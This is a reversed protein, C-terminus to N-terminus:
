GAGDCRRRWRPSRSSRSSPVSDILDDPQRGPPCGVVAGCPPRHYCTGTVCGSQDGLVVPRDCAAPAAFRPRRPSGRTRRIHNAFPGQRWPPSHTDVTIRLGAQNAPAAFALYQIPQQGVNAGTLAPHEDKPTLRPDALGRQHVVHRPGTGPTADNPRGAHLRLHLERESAHMLQARRHQVVDVIQRARLAVGQARREPQDGALRGITEQDAQRHQAQQRRHGLLSRKDAQDVVRLPEVPDRRLDEREDRPPQQSLGDGQHEGYALRAVRQLQLPQRFPRDTTQAVSISAGQQVRCTGPPEVLPHPVPDDGLGAAVREGQQLQGAAQGRGLQRAAERKGARPRQRPLDLVAEDPADPRKRLLRLSQQQDGGGFGQAIRGQQLAGGLSEPDPSVGFCRGLVFPQDLETRPHPETMRQNAGRGVPRATDSVAPGNMTREGVHRVTLHVGIPAGPMPGMRCRSGVLVDCGVQFPRGIPRLATAADGRGGREQLSRCLQRSVRGPASSSSERCCLGLELRGGEVGGIREDRGRLDAREVVKLLGLQRPQPGLDHEGASPSAVGRRQEEIRGLAEFAEVVSEGALRVEFREARRDEGSAEASVGGESLDGLSDACRGGLRRRRARDIQQQVADRRPERVSVACRCRRQPGRQLHKAAVGLVTASAARPPEPQCPEEGAFQPVVRQQIFERRARNPECTVRSRKSVKRDRQDIAGAHVDVGSLEGGGSGQDFFGVCDGGCGAVRRQPVGRDQEDRPAAILRVRQVVEGPRHRVRSQPALSPRDTLGAVHRGDQVVSEAAVVLRQGAGSGRALVVFEADAAEGEDFEDLSRDRPAAGSTAASASRSSSSRVTAAPM